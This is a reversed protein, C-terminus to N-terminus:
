QLPKNFQTNSNTQEKELQEVIKEIESKLRPADLVADWVYTYIVMAYNHALFDRFNALQRWDVQDHTTRFEDPLRKVAEGIVEYCRIVAKQTKNDYKFAAEGEQTFAEIDILETLM